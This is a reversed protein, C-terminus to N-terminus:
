EFNWGIYSIDVIGYIDSSGDGFAISPTGECPNLKATFLPTDDGQKHFSWTGSAADMKMTFAHFRFIGIDYNFKKMSKGDLYYIANRAFRVYGNFGKTDATAGVNGCVHFQPKDLGDEALRFEFSVTM